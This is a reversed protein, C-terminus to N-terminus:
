NRDLEALTDATRLADTESATLGFRQSFAAPDKRLAMLANADAAAASVLESMSPQTMIHERGSRCVHIMVLTTPNHFKPQAVFKPKTIPKTFLAIYRREGTAWEM